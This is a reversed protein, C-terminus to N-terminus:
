HLHRGMILRRLNSNIALAKSFYTIAKDFKGQEVLANGFNNYADLYHPDIKIAEKFNNISEDFYKLSHLTYAYLNYLKSNKNKKELLTECSNIAEELRGTRILSLIEDYESTM